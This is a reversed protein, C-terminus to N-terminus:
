LAVVVKRASVGRRLLAMAEPIDQLSRGAVLPEPAPKFRGAALAPELFDVFIQACLADNVLATGWISRTAVGKRRARLALRLFGLGVRPLRSLRWALQHELPADDLPLPASALAVMKRGPCRAAIDICAVGSGAAIALVGALKFGEVAAVVQDVARRDRYDIATSAGLRRVLEFNKPSATAVVRYGAAVALQIASSGVSTAGGWVVVADNSVPATGSGPPRRLGLQADLFLGSSATAVALPLVAAQEFSVADPLRTTADQRLLVYAQFAGEAARNAVKDIGLALGMVRDGVRFRSVGAGVSVVEGAVDTGLVAPYTVWPTVFGGLTQVVGDFPNIALAGSRIVLEGASAVPMPAASVVLASQRAPLWAAVNTQTNM